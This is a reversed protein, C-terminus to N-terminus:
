GNDAGNDPTLHGSLPASLASISLSLQAHREAFATSSFDDMSCKTCNSRLAFSKQRFKKSIERRDSEENLFHFIIQRPSRTSGNSPSLRKRENCM